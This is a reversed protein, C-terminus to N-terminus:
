DDYFTYGSKIGGRFKVVRLLTKPYLSRFLKAKFNFLETKFGKLDEAVTIGKSEYLFDPTYTAERVKVTKGNLGIYEYKAILVFKIEASHVRLNSIEGTSVLALLHVYRAKEALSDFVYGNYEVKKNNYKRQVKKM